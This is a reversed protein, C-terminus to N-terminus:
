YGREFAIWDEMMVLDSIAGMTCFNTRHATAGFVGGLAFGLMAVKTTVSIEDM